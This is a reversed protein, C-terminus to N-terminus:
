AGVPLGCATTVAASAKRLIRSVHMQSVGVRGAIEAQTLECGVRLLLVERDRPTLRRLARGLGVSLEARDYEPEPCGIVDQVAINHGDQGVYTAELSGPRAAELARQAEAVEGAELGLHRAIEETTPPAGSSPPLERNARMVRTAREKVSRAVHVRWTTDRFHRRIEGQIVPRAYAAFPEGREPSYRDVAKILGVTAAQCLDEVPEGRGEYTRALRRALPLFRVIIAERAHADGASCRSFLTRLDWSPGNRRAPTGPQWHPTM